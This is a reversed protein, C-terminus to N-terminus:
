QLMRDIRERVERAGGDSGGELWHLDPERRLWTLQRKAFQRTAAVGRERLAERGYRGDLHQWVQRYGVARMSPTDLDLDGRERLARVEDVFGGRLMADFRTAIREHLVSRASPCVAVRIMPESLPASGREALLATM